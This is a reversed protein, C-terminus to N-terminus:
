MINIYVFILSLFFDVKTEFNGRRAFQQGVVRFSFVPIEKDNRGQDGPGLDWPVLGLLLPTMHSSSVAVSRSEPLNTGRSPQSESPVTLTRPASGM